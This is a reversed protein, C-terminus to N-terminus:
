KLVKSIMELEDVFDYCCSDNHVDEDHELMAKKCRELTDKLTDMEAKMGEVDRVVQGPYEWKQCGSIAAIADLADDAVSMEEGQTDRSRECKELIQRAISIAEDRSIKKGTM